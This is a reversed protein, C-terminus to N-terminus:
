RPSAPSSARRRAAATSRSRIVRCGSTAVRGCWHSWRRQGKDAEVFREVRLHVQASSRPFPNRYVHMTPLGPAMVVFEHRTNPQTEFPGWVGDAGVAKRHVPGGLREGTQPNTAYVEVTAGALPLNTPTNGETGFPGSVM